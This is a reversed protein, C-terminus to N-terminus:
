HNLVEAFDEAKSNIPPSDVLELLKSKKGTFTKSVQNGSRGLGEFVGQDVQDWLVYKAQGDVTFLGFNNEAGGANNADKWPEDFAEFYFCAIREKLTWDRITRYYL